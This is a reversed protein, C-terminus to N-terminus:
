VRVLPEFKRECFARLAHPVLRGVSPKFYRTGEKLVKGDERLIPNGNEDVKSMNAYQVERFFTDPRIGLSVFFGFTVYLVDCAEKIAATVDGSDMAEAFERAEEVVLDRRLDWTKQNFDKWDSVAGFKLHFDQVAAFFDFM